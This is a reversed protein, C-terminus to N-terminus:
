IKNFQSYSNCTVPLIIPFYNDGKADIINNYIKVVRLIPFLQETARKNEIVVIEATPCYIKMIKAESIPQFVEINYQCMLELQDHENFDKCQNNLVQLAKKSIASSNNELIKKSENIFDEFNYNVIKVLCLMVQSVLYTSVDMTAKMVLQIKILEHPENINPSNEEIEEIKGEITINSGFGDYVSYPLFKDIELQKSKPYACALETLDGQYTLLNDAKSLYNYYIKEYFGHQTSLVIPSVIKVLVIPEIENGSRMYNKSMGPDACIDFELANINVEFEPIQISM